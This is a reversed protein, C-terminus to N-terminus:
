VFATSALRGRRRCSSPSSLHMPPSGLTGCSPGTPFTARAAGNAWTTRAMCFRPRGKATRTQLYLRIPISRACDHIRDSPMPVPEQVLAHECTIAGLVMWTLGFLVLCFFDTCRRLEKMDDPGTPARAYPTTFEPEAPVSSSSPTRMSLDNNLPTWATSAADARDEESRLLRDADRM